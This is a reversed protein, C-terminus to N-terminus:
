GDVGIAEANGLFGVLTWDGFSIQGGMAADQAAQRLQGGADRNQGLFRSIDAEGFAAGPFPQPQHVRQIAGALENPVAVLKGDVDGQNVAVFRHQPQNQRRDDSRAIVGPTAAAREFLRQALGGLADPRRPDAM